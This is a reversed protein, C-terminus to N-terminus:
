KEPFSRRLLALQGAHYLNHQMVGHLLGYLSSEV